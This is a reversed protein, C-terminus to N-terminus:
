SAVLSKEFNEEVFHWNIVNFFNEIYLLRNNRTDIYYAHEWVDCTLLPAYVNQRIPTDANQTNIIHLKHEKDKVL